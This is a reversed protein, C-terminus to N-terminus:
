QAGGHVMLVSVQGTPEAALERADDQAMQLSVTTTLEDTDLHVGTVTADWASSRSSASGTSQDSTAAVVVTVRNGARLDPPYQGPKIGVAVVAQGAPPVRAEGLVDKTLLTGAPMSYGVARGEVSARSRAPIVALGSDVSLSAERVDRASLEQGVTVPRALALVAERHGMQTAVVM